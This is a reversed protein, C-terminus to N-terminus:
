LYRPWFLELSLFAVGVSLSNAAGLWSLGRIGFRQRFAWRLVASELATNILIAMIVTAAWAIPNFTGIHLMRNVVQGPYIEWMFGASPLLVCGLLASVANMAVDAVLCMRTSLNTFRRLVFFEIVLGLGIAWVSLLRQELYLAPWVVDALILM